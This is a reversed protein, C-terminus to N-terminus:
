SERAVLRIQKIEAADKKAAQEDRLRKYYERIPKCVNEWKMEQTLTMSCYKKKEKREHSPQIVGMETLIKRQKTVTDSACKQRKTIDYNKLGALIDARILEAKEESICHM